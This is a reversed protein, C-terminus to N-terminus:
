AYRSADEPCVCFGYDGNEDLACEGTLTNDECEEYAECPTGVPLPDSACTVFQGVYDGYDMTACVGTTECRGFECPAGLLFEGQCGLRGCVPNVQCQDDLECPKGDAFTGRCRVEGAYPEDDGTIIICTDNETCQDEDDCPAGVGLSCESGDVPGPPGPPPRPPSGSGSGSGSGQGYDGESGGYEGDADGYMSLTRSHQSMLLKQGAAGPLVVAALLLVLACM